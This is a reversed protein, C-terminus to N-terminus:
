SVKDYWCRVRFGNLIDALERENLLNRRTVRFDATNLGFYKDKTITKWKNDHDAILILNSRSYSELQVHHM